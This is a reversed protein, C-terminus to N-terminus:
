KKAPAPGPPTESSAIDSVAKWSGDAQKKYATVYSGKDNIPKKTGPDTVTLTYSGQTFALEGSKAVEVRSAQFALALANDGIMEKMAARIAEKGAAPAAGPTMLTADDTYHAVLKDVDKALYDKNWQAENDKIAQVDADHTDPQPAPACGTLLAV